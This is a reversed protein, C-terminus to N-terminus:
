SIEKEAVEKNSFTLDNNGHYFEQAQENSATFLFFKSVGESKFCNEAGNLLKKGIGKGRYDILTYIWEVYGMKQFDVLSLMISIDCRGIVIDDQKAIIIKTNKLEELKASHLKEKYSVEDLEWGLVDPETIRAQKEFNCLGQIDENTACKVVLNDIGMMKDGMLKKAINGLVWTM